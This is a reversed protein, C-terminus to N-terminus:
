GTFRDTFLFATEASAEVTCDEAYTCLGSDGAKLVTQGCVLRGRLLHILGADVGAPSLDVTRDEGWDFKRIRFHECEAIVQEAADPDTRIPEPEFDDFDICQMSEKVHLERPQGDLGLRGWDFVRYTTDSNQQIELILNGGDIAHIRGSEVLLSDGAQSEFRHCLGELIGASLAKEFDEKTVGTRLGAILGAGPAAEAVYWNETKPEGCLQPAATAPPHVQLSLRETCDLWKVLIPFPRARPWDAGLIWETQTEILEHLSSGKHPGEAV